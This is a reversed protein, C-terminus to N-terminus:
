YYSQGGRVCWVHDLDSMAAGTVDGSAFDVQFAAGYADPVPTATWFPHRGWVTGFPNGPPVKKDGSARDLLSALQEVTPLHWGLRGGLELLSCRTRAESWTNTPVTPAQEWVLGTEKDLVGKGDLVLEFRVEGPLLQGWAPPLEDVKNNLQDLEDLLPVLIPPVSLREPRTQRAGAPSILVLALACALAVEVVGILKNTRM